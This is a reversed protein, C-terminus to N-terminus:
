KAELSKMGKLNGILSKVQDLQYKFSVDKRAAKEILWDHAEQWTDCYRCGDSVKARRDAKSGPRYIVWVSSKTERSCEVAEINQEYSARYKVM